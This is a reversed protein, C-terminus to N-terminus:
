SWVSVVLLSSVRSHIEKFLPGEVVFIQGGPEVIEEAEGLPLFLYAGSEQTRYASFEEDILTVQGSTVGPSPATLHTVLGKVTEM